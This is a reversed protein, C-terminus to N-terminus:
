LLQERVLFSINKLESYVDLAEVGPERTGNGSAGLGGFPMHPESGYTGININVVGSRVRQAFWMARDVSKTHIAATLGYQTSNSLELAESMSDVVYLTVVPGFIENISLDDESGLGDIITPQIYFGRSLDNDKPAGGGCLIRGGQNKANSLSEIISDHLRKSIVPGLDSDAYIGLKLSKAKEVLRDRFQDYNKQLKGFKMHYKNIKQNITTPKSLPAVSSVINKTVTAYDANNLVLALSGHLGGWATTKVPAVMQAMQEMMRDMSKTTPQGLFVKLLKALLILAVMQYVSLGTASSYNM